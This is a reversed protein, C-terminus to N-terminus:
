VIWVLLGFLITLVVAQGPSPQRDDFGLFGECVPSTEVLKLVGEAFLIYGM